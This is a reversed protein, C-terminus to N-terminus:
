RFIRKFAESGYGMKRAFNGYFLAIDMGLHRFRDQLAVIWLSLLSPKSM